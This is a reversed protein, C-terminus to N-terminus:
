KSYHYRLSLVYVYIMGGSVSYLIRHEDTIRRSWVGQLNGKLPEPKGLGTFPHELIDELLKTIRKMIRKNGTSKWYALDEDAQPMFKIEM